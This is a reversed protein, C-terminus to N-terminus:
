DTLLCLRVACYVSVRSEDSIGANAEVSSGAVSDISSASITEKVLHRSYLSVIDFSLRIQLRGTFFICKGSQRSPM